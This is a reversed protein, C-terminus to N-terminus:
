MRWSINFSRIYNDFYLHRSRSFALNVFLMYVLFMFNFGENKRIRVPDLLSNVYDALSMLMIGIVFISGVVWTKRRGVRRIYVADVFPAWFIKFAFPWSAFSFTGQDAYSVKRSSLILPVSSVLGFPIGQFIYLWILLLINPWDKYAEKTSLKTQPSDSQENSELLATEASELKDEKKNVTNMKKEYLM